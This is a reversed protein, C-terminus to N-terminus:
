AAILEHTRAPAPVPYCSFVDEYQQTIQFKQGVLTPWYYKWLSAGFGLGALTLAALDAGAAILLETNGFFLALTACIITAGLMLAASRLTRPACVLAASLFVLVSFDSGTM